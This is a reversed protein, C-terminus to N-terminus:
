AFEPDANNPKLQPVLNGVFDYSGTADPVLSGDMVYQGPALKQGQPLNINVLPVQNNPSLARLSESQEEYSPAPAMQQSPIHTYTYTYIYIHVACM